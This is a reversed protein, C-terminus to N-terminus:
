ARGACRRARSCPPRGAGARAIPRRQDARALQGLELLVQELDGPVRVQEENRGGLHREGVEVALLDEVAAAAAAAVGRVRRAEAALGARVALVDRPRMRAAGTRCPPAPSTRAARASRRRARLASACRPPPGSAARAARGPRRQQAGAVHAEADACSRRCRPTAASGRVGIALDRGAAVELRELRPAGVDPEAALAAALGLEHVRQVARPERDAARQQGDELVVLLLVPRDHHGRRQPRVHSSPLDNLLSSPTRRLRVAPRVTDPSKSTAQFDSLIVVLHFVPEVRPEQARRAAREEEEAWAAGALARPNALRERLGIPNVQQVLPTVLRIQRLGRPEGGLHTRQGTAREDDDVFDLPKGPQEVFGMTVDLLVSEPEDQAAGTRSPQLRQARVEKGSPRDLAEQMRQQGLLHPGVEDELGGQSPAREGHDHRRWVAVFRELGVAPQVELLLDLGLGEDPIERSERSEEGHGGDEVPLDDVHGPEGAVRAHRAARDRPVELDELVRQQSEPERGELGAQASSFSSM